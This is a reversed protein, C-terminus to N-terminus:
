RAPGKPTPTRGTAEDTYALRELSKALQQDQQALEIKRLEEWARHLDRQAVNAMETWWVRECELCDEKYTKGHGCGKMDWPM